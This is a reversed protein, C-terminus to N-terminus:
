LWELMIYFFIPQGMKLKFHSASCEETFTNLIIQRGNTYESFSPFM